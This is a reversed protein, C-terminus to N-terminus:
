NDLFANSLSNMMELWNESLPDLQVTKGGIDKAIARAIDESFEKQVFITKIDEKKAVDIIKKIDSPSPEKGDPEIAIQKLGYERAFYAWAPHFCIFTKHSM